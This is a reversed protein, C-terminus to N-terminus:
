QPEGGSPAAAVPAGGETREGDVVLTGAMGPRLALEANSVEASVYVMAHGDLSATSEAVEAVTASFVREPLSPTRWSLHAGPRLTSRATEPLMGRVFVPDLAYVRLLSPGGLEVVGAIPATIRQSDLRAQAEALKADVSVLRADLAALEEPRAPLQATRVLARAAVVESQRTAVRDRAADVEAQAVGANGSLAQLRALVTREEALRAEAVAVGEKAAAITEARGGAVLLDRDAVLRARQGTLDALLSDARSSGLEVLVDGVQVRDGTSLHDAVRVQNLESRGVELSSEATVGSGMAPRGSELRWAFRGPEVETVTFTKGADVTAAGTVQRFDSHTWALGALAALAAIGAALRVGRVVRRRSAISTSARAASQPEAEGKAPLVIENM